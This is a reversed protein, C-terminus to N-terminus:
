LIQNSDSQPFGWTTGGVPQRVVGEGAIPDRALYNRNGRLLGFM